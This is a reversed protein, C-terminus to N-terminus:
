KRRRRKNPKAVSRSGATSPTLVSDDDVKTGGTASNKVDILGDTSATPTEKKKGTEASRSSLKLVDDGEHKEQTVSPTNYEEFAAPDTQTGISSTRRVPKGTSKLASKRRARGGLREEPEGGSKGELKTTTLTDNKVVGDDRSADEKTESTGTVTPPNKEGKPLRRRSRIATKGASVSPLNNAGCSKEDSKVKNSTEDEPPENSNNVQPSVDIKTRDGGYTGEIKQNSSSAAKPTERKSGVRLKVAPKKDDWQQIPMGKSKADSKGSEPTAKFKGSGDKPKKPVQLSSELIVNDDEHRTELNESDIYNWRENGLLLFEVEGDEYVVKHKKTVPDFLEIVGKYFMQDDPWWVEIKRGTPIKWGSIKRRPKKTWSADGFTELHNEDNDAERSAKSSVIMEKLCPEASINEEAADKFKPPKICYKWQKRFSIGETVNKVNEKQEEKLFIGGRVVPTSVDANAGDELSKKASDLSLKKEFNTIACHDSVIATSGEKEMPTNEHMEKKGSSLATKHRRSKKASFHSKTSKRRKSLRSAPLDKSEAASIVCTSNDGVQGEIPLVEVEREPELIGTTKPVIDSPGDSKVSKNNQKRGSGPLNDSASASIVFKNDGVLGEFPQLGVEREPELLVETELAMDSKLSKSKRKRGVRRTTPFFAEKDHEVRSSDSADPLQVSSSKAEVHKSDLENGSKEYISGFNVDETKLAINNRCQENNSSDEPKFELSVPEVILNENGLPALGNSLVKRAKDAFAGFDQLSSQSKDPKKSEQHLENRDTREPLKSELVENQEPAVSCEQCISAVNDVYDGLCFGTLKIAALLYPKLKMACNSIVTEALRCAVPMADKKSKHVNSLLCLLLEESISETDELLLSMITEMSSFVNISHDPRISQLFHKFMQLILDYCELDLMIVCSRVRAVTELIIVKKSYSPGSIDDLTGFVDVIVAFIDKMLSDSYPADPATIRIIEHICAAVFVKVNPEPHKLLEDTVLSNMIPNLADSMSTSPTQDVRSLYIEIQDLLRLLKAVASPPSALRIGLDKLKNELQTQTPEM